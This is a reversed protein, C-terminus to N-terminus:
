IIPLSSIEFMIQDKVFNVESVRKYWDNRIEDNNSCGSVALM